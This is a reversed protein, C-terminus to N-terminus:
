PPAPPPTRRPPRQHRIRRAFEHARRTEVELLLAHLTLRAARAAVSNGAAAEALLGVPFRGLKTTDGHIRLQVRYGLGDPALTCEVIDATCDIERLLAALLAGADAPRLM